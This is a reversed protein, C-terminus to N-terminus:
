SARDESFRNGALHEHIYLDETRSSRLARTSEYFTKDMGHAGRLM